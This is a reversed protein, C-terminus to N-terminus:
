DGAPPEKGGDLEQALLALGRARADGVLRPLFWTGGTDPILGVRAFSQIFRAKLSAIVIDCALALNCGAGAATGNVCAVVPIPMARLQRVLPNYYAEQTAGLVVTEALKAVRDSLDQGACFGRGAGTIMVARCTEDKEADQDGRAIRCADCRQFREAPGAPQPHHRSLGRANPSSRNSPRKTRSGSFIIWRASRRKRARSMTPSTTTSRAAAELMDSEDRDDGIFAPDGRTGGGLSLSESVHGPDAQDSLRAPRAPKRGAGGEAGRGLRRPHRRASQEAGLATFGKTIGAYSMKLASAATLSGELVRVILGYDNFKAFTGAAPGSAYIKTNTSGPKPPPGIIAAGVFPCGTAGIVEAIKLMTQPNVANCEVYVPKSNAATLTPRWGSAGARARRGAARDVAPVRGGALAREDAAQMGAERARAASAASRGALSTLVTVKNETLRRGVGAGM